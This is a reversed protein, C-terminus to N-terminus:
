SASKIREREDGGEEEKVWREGEVEDNERGKM